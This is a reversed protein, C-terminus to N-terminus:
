CELIPETSVPQEPTRCLRWYDMIKKVALHLAADESRDIVFFTPKGQSRQLILSLFKMAVGLQMSLLSGFFLLAMSITCTIM